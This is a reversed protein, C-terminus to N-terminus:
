NNTQEKINARYLALSDLSLALSMSLEVGAVTTM